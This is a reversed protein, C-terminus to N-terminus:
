VTLVLKDRFASPISRGTELLAELHAKAVQLFRLAAEVRRERPCSLGAATAVQRDM